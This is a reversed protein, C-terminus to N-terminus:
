AAINSPNKVLAVAREVGTGAAETGHALPPCAATTMALAAIAAEPAGAAVHMYRMTTQISVHGALLQITRPPVGRMETAGGGRVLDRALRGTALRTCFTHRLVHYLGAWKERGRKTKKTAPLGAAKEVCEMTWRVGEDTAGDLIRSARPLAVLAAALRPTMPV